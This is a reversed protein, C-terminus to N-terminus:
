RQVALGSIKEIGSLRVLKMLRDSLGSLCVCAGVASAVECRGIILGVGSSDMFRVGAFDLVLQEPRYRFIARDIRERIRKASHHDIECVLSAILRTGKETIVVDETMTKKREGKRIKRL